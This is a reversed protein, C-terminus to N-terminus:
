ELIFSTMSVSGHAIGNIFWRIQDNPEQLALVYLLPLYHEPTPIALKAEWGFNQYNILYEYDQSNIAQVIKKEFNIAWDFPKAEEDYDMLSLNHVMDGSGIILIGQARLPKLAQAIKYHWQAPKNYDLSLQVVPIDAAPFLSRLPVWSGHDIGWENNIKIELIPDLIKKIQKVLEPSGLPNYKITYLEEPFGYFDFIQRPQLVDSIATEAINWHASIVLIAKPKNLDLGLEQWSKNYVNDPLVSMPSGHGIFIVPTKSIEM